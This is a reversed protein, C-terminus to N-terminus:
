TTGVHLDVHQDVHLSVYLDVHLNYQKPCTNKLPLRFSRFIPSLAHYFM